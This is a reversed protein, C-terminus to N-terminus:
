RQLFPRDAGTIKRARGQKYKKFGIVIVRPQVLGLIYCHQGQWITDPHVHKPLRARANFHSFGQLNLNVPACKKLNTGNAVPNPYPDSTTTTEQWSPSKQFCYFVSRQLSSFASQFLWYGATLISSSTLWLSLKKKRWATRTIGM